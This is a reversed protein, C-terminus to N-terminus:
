RSRMTDSVPRGRRELAKVIAVIVLAGLILLAAAAVVHIGLYIAAGFLVM